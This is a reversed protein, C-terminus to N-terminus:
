SSEGFGYRPNTGAGTYYADPRDGPLKRCIWASRKGILRREDDRYCAAAQIQSFGVMRLWAEIAGATPLHTISGTERYTDPYHVEVFRGSRLSRPGRLTASELALYGDSALLHWLRGLFRLQEANHYLVGTCWILDFSGLDALDSSPLYLLNGEVYRNRSEIDPLWHAVLDRKEPLEMMVLEAPNLGDLRRSDLGDKPGVELIRGGRFSDPGAVSLLTEFLHVRYMMREPKAQRWRIRRWASVPWKKLRKISM